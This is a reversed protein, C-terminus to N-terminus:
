GNRQPAVWGSRLTTLDGDNWEVLSISAGGRDHPSIVVATFKTMVKALKQKRPDLAKNDRLEDLFAVWDDDSAQQSPLKMLGIWTGSNAYLLDSDHRFRAAHSHGIIIAKTSYKASLRQAEKWEDEAPDLLFYDDAEPGALKKQMRAYYSLAGRGLKVMAKRLTGDDNGFSILGGDGLEGELADLEAQNLGLAELRKDLGLDPEEEAGEAFTFPMDARRYLQWLMSLSAQKWANKASSPDVALATLAAGQFDPKLLSLFRMGSESVGPNLIKKVLISGPAYKYQSGGARLKEYDVRNWDDNQEGHTVLVRTGGVEIIQPKDGDAFVLRKAVDEPQGLAQRLVAQVETLFLEVDHNGMRITVSGGRELVRGFAQLVAASAPFAAIARAQQVARAVDLELPDDNMLFDVADGNVIVHLQKGNLHDLLTPLAKGGEFVDYPGGNGLHLDSVILTRM